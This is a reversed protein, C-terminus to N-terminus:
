KCKFSAFIYKSSTIIDLHRTTDLNRSASLMKKKGNMCLQTIRLVKKKAVKLCPKNCCKISVANKKSIESFNKKKKKGQLDEEIFCFSSIRFCNKVLMHRFIIQNSINRTQHKEM